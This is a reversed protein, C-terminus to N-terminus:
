NRRCNHHRNTNTTFIANLLLDQRELRRMLEEHRQRTEEDRQRTEEDRQRQEEDRQRQEEDRQRQEEDRSDQRKDSFYRKWISDMAVSCTVVTGLIITVAINEEIFTYVGFAILITSLFIPPKTTKIPSDLIEIEVRGANNAFNTALRGSEIEFPNLPM